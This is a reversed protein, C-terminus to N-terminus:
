LSRSVELFFSSLLFSSFRMLQRLFLPPVAAIAAALKVTSRAAPGDVLVQLVALPFCEIECFLQM